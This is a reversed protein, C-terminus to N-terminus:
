MTHDHGPLSVSVRDNIQSTALNSLHVKLFIASVNRLAYFDTNLQSYFKYILWLRCLQGPLTIGGIAYLATISVFISKLGM